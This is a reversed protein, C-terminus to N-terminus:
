LTGIRDEEKVLYKSAEKVQRKGRKLNKSDALKAVSATSGFGLPVNKGKFRLYQVVYFSSLSRLIQIENELSEIQSTFSSNSNVSKVAFVGGDSVYSALNVNGFSGKGICNLQVWRRQPRRSIIESEKKEM